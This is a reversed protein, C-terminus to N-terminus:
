RVKSYLLGALVPGLERFGRDSGALILSSLVPYGGYTWGAMSRAVRCFRSPERTGFSIERREVPAEGMCM